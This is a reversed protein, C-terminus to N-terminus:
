YYLLFNPIWKLITKYIAHKTVLYTFVLISDIGPTFFSNSM